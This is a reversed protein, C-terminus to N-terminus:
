EIKLIKETAISSGSKIQILYTGISFRRMEIVIEDSPLFKQSNYVKGNVDYIKIYIDFATKKSFTVKIYDVFPNPSIIFDLTENFTTSNSNDVKLYITSTLFGQQATISNVAVKGIIGSQGISQQVSYKNDTAYVASSGVSTLTSKLVTYKKKTSQQSFAICVNLFFLIFIIIKM